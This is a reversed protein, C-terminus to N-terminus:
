LFALVFNTRWFCLLWPAHDKAALSFTLIKEELVWWWFEFSNPLFPRLTVKWLLVKFLNSGNYFMAVKKKVLIYYKLGKNNIYGIYVMFGSSISCAPTNWRPRYHKSLCFGDTSFSICYKQYLIVQVAFRLYPWFKKILQNVPNKKLNLTPPPPPPSSYFYIFFARFIVLQSTM